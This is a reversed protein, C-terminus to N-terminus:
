PETRTKGIYEFVKVEPITGADPIAVSNNSSYVLRYDELAALPVPSIAPNNGVIRYNGSEQSSIYEEAEQYSDFQEM